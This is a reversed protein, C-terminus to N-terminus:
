RSERDYAAGLAEPQRVAGVFVILAIISAVYPLIIFAQYPITPNAFQLRLQAADCIGFFLAALVALLPNWRGLIVAALAIFGRGASMNETFLHIQSLAIHAGGLAALMGSIMIAIYRIRFVPVGATDAAKPNEGTARLNLGWTTKFLVFLTLPVLAFLFYALADQYFLVTGVIPIQSLFPVAVEDFGQVFARGLNEGFAQRALFATLGACLLNVAIGSVLQNVRLTVSLLGLLLGALGGAFLAAIIGVGASGSYYSGTAAGFAGALMMGELGINLVGSRESLVGGLAAFAIPVSLRLAAALFDTLQVPDTFLDM